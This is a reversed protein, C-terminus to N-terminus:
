PAQVSVDLDDIHLYDDGSCTVRAVNKWGLVRTEFPAGYNTANTFEASGILGGLSDYGFITVPAGLNGATISQLDFLQGTTTEFYTLSEQQYCYMLLGGHGQPLSWITNTIYNEPSAFKFGKEIYSQGVETISNGLSGAYEDFFGMVNPSSVVTTQFSSTKVTTGCTLTITYAGSQAYTHDQKDTAVTSPTSISQTSSDGWDLTCGTATPFTTKLYARASSDNVRLVNLYSKPAAGQATLQGGMGLAALDREVGAEFRAIDAASATGTMVSSPLAASNSAAPGSAVSPPSPQGCAALLLPLLFLPATRKM